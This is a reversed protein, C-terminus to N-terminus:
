TPIPGIPHLSEGRILFLAGGPSHFPSHRSGAEALLYDGPFYEVGDQVISGELVLCEETCPHEHAEFTSGPLMRIFATMTGGAPDAHLLRFDVGAVLSRWASESARLTRTGCPARAERSSRLVRERLKRHESPALPRADVALALRKFLARAVHAEDHLPLVRADREPM